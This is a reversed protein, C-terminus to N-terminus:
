TASCPRLWAECGEGHWPLHEPMQHKLYGFPLAGEVRQTSFPSSLGKPWCGSVDMARGKWLLPGRGVLQLHRISADPPRRPFPVALLFPHAKQTRTSGTASDANTVESRSSQAASSVCM